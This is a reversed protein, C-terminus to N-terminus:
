SLPSVANQQKRGSDAETQYLGDMDFKEKRVMVKPINYSGFCQYLGDM